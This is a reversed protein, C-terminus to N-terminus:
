RIGVTYLDVQGSSKLSTLMILKEGGPASYVADSYLTNNYVETKNTGDIRILSITGKKETDNYNETLILHFSDSYWSIKPQVDSIKTTFVTTEVKEGIPLPKELNYVKYEIRDDNTMTYLFKKDDPAWLTKPDVAIEVLKEPVDLKEIFDTRKKTIEAIWSARLLQPSSTAEAVEDGLSVVYHNEQADTILLKTEDPSWEISSGDSYFEYATDALVVNPTSKFLSVGINTFPIVWVGPSTGDKTFYALKTLSPSITPLRAGTNTLPELRPSQSILIATIDTVLEPFVEINKTWTVFGNKIMRLNHTGPSVSAISDNTATYLSGDIYVKAGEPLSKAGIMGTQTLDIGTKEKNVRYGATYLYLATTVGILVAASLITTLWNKIM